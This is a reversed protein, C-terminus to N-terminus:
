QTYHEAILRDASRKMKELREPFGPHTTLDRLFPEKFSGIFLFGREMAIDMVEIAKEHDGQLIHLAMLSTYEQRVKLSKPDKNEFYDVLLALFDDSRDSGLKSFVYTDRALNDLRCMNARTINGPEGVKEYTYNPFYDEPYYNDKAIMEALFSIHFKEIAAASKLAADREGMKAYVYAREPPFRIHEL